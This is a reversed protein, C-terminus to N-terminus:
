VYNSYKGQEYFSLLITCLGLERRMRSNSQRPSKREERTLFYDLLIVKIWSEQSSGNHIYSANNCHAIEALAEFSGKRLQVIVSFAGKLAKEQNFADIVAKM